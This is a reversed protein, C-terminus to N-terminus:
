GSGQCNPCEREDESTEAPIAPCKSALHSQRITKASDIRHEPCNAKEAAESTVLGCPAKECPCADELRTGHFSRGIHWEDESPEMRCKGPECPMESWAHYHPKEPETSCKPRQDKMGKFSCVCEPEAPQTPHVRCPWRLSGDGSPCSCEPEASAPDEFESCECDEFICGPLSRHYRKHHDCNRCMESRNEPEASAALLGELYNIRRQAEGVIDDHYALTVTPEASAPAATLKEYEALPLVVTEFAAGGEIQELDSRSITYYGALEVRGYDDTQDPEYEALDRIEAIVRARETLASAPAALAATLAARADDHSVMATHGTRAKKCDALARAAAEIMEQTINM